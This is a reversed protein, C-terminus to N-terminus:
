DIQEKIMLKYKYQWTCRVTKKEPKKSKTMAM